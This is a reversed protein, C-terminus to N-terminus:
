RKKNHELGTVGDILKVGAVWLCRVGLFVGFILRFGLRVDLVILAVGIVLFVIGVLLSRKASPEGHHREYVRPDTFTGIIKGDRDYIRCGVGPTAAITGRSYSEAEELRNFILPVDDGARMSMTKVDFHFVACQSETMAPGWYTAQQSM